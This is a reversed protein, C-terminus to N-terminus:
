EQLCQLMGVVIGTVSIGDPKAPEPSDYRLALHTNNSGGNVFFLEDVTLVSFSNAREFSDMAMNM